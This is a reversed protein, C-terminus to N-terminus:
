SERKSNLALTFKVLSVLKDFDGRVDGLQIFILM